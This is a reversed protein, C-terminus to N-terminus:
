FPFSTKSIDIPMWPFRNTDSIFDQGFIDLDGWYEPPSNEEVPSHLRATRLTWKKNPRLSAYLYISEVLKGRALNDERILDKEQIIKDRVSLLGNKISDKEQSLIDKGFLFYIGKKFLPSLNEPMPSFPVLESLFILHASLDPFENLISPSNIKLLDFRIYDGQTETRNIIDCQFLMGIKIWNGDKTQKFSLKCSENELLKIEKYWEDDTNSPISDDTSILDSILTEIGSFLHKADQKILDVDGEKIPRFHALSNRINSIENLKLEVVERSCPFHPKFLPWYGNSIILRALEGMTLHLLFCSLNYGLYGHVRSQAIKKKAISAITGNGCEDSNINSDMWKDGFKEKLVIYTFTRLTNEIRFLISFAEYYHLYLYNNPITLSGDEHSESKGWHM